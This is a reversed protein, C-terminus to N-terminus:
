SLIEWKVTSTDTSSTSKITFSVGATINSIFLGGQTGGPTICSTAICSTADVVSSSVTVTGGVLTSVGSALVGSVASVGSAVTVGGLGPRGTIPNTGSNQGAPVFVPFVQSVLAANAVDQYNFGNAVLKLITPTSPPTYTPPQAHFVVSGYYPPPDQEGVVYQSLFTAAPVGVFPSFVSNTLVANAVAEQHTGSRYKANVPIPQTIALYSAFVPFVVGYGAGISGKIAADHTGYQYESAIPNGAM